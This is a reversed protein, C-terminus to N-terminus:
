VEQESPPRRILTVEHTHVVQGPLIIIGQPAAEWVVQTDRKVYYEFRYTGAEGNRAEIKLLTTNPYPRVWDSIDLPTTSLDDNDRQVLKRDIENIYFLLSGCCRMVDISFVNDM